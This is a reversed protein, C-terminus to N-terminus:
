SRRVCDNAISVFINILLIAHEDAIADFSASVCRGTIGLHQRLPLLHSGTIPETRASVDSLIIGTRLVRWRTQIARELL